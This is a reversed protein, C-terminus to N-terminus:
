SRKTYLLFRAVDLWNTVVRDDVLLSVVFRQQVLYTVRQSSKVGISTSMINLDYRKRLRTTASHSLYRVCCIWLNTQKLIQNTGRSFNWDWLFDTLIFTKFNHTCYVYVYLIPTEIKLYEILRWKRNLIAAKLLELCGSCHLLASLFRIKVEDLSVNKFNHTCYFPPMMCIPTPM